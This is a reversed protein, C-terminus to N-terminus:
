RLRHKKLFFYNVVSNFLRNMKIKKINKYMDEPRSGSYHPLSIMDHNSFNEESLRSVNAWDLERILYENPFYKLVYHFYIEYDASPSDEKPDLMDLYIDYFSKEYYKEVMEFLSTLKNKNFMMHHSIGSKDYERTLEPHVRKMHSFYPKHYEDSVTFFPKNSEDFFKIKKTFFVDSDIVLVFEKNNQLKPYYLKILQAYIWGARKKNKINQTVYDLTFPFISADVFSAGDLKLENDESIYFIDDYGIINEKNNKLTSKIISSDNPGVTHFIDFSTM